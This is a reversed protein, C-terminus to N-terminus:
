GQYVRTTVGPCLAAFRGSTSSIALIPVADRQYRSFDSQARTNSGSDEYGGNHQQWGGINEPFVERREKVAM